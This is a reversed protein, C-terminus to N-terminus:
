GSALSIRTMSSGMKLTWPGSAEGRATVRLKLEKAPNAITATDGRQTPYDVDLTGRAPALDVRMVILAMLILVETSAFQRAPCLHPPAGWPMFRTTAPGTREKTDKPVFRYPDFQAATPGWLKESRNIPSTPMQVFNGKKLFYRGDLLTDSVVKRISANSARTRQTEQLMSLILPCKTKLAAVDLAFGDDQKIVAEATLEARVAELIEPRAFLDYVAWFVTPVTNAFLAIGFTAEQKWADEESTGSELLVRRREHMVHASDSPVDKAYEFVADFVIQRAKYGKGTIDLGTMHAALYSHWEWFAAKVKPDRFPHAEGYVGASSADVVVHKIWAHLPVEKMRVLDDVNAVARRGMSLNQADLHPGPSLSGRMAHSFHGIVEGTFREQMDPSADGIARASSQIFPLFSLTKSAKQILPILTQTNCIYLKTNFVRLTYMDSPNQASMMAYYESGHRFLGILHGFLPIGPQAQPPERPDDFLCLAWEATFAVTILGFLGYAVERLM